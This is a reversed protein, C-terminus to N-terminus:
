YLCTAGKEPVFVIAPDDVGQQQAKKIVTNLRSTSAIVSKRGSSSLAVYKGQYQPDSVLRKCSKRARKAM